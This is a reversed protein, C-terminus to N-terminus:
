KQELLSLREREFPDAETLLVLDARAVGFLEELEIAHKLCLGQLDNALMNM